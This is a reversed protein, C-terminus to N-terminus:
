LWPGELRLDNIIITFLSAIFNQLVPVWILTSFKEVFSLLILIFLDPDSYFNLFDKVYATLGTLGVRENESSLNQCANIPNTWM